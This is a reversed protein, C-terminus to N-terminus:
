RLGRGRGSGLPAGRFRFKSFCLRVREAVDGTSRCVGGATGSDVHGGCGGVGAGRGSWCDGAFKRAGIWVSLSGGRAGRADVANRRASNRRDDCACDPEVMLMQINRRTAGLALRIGFESKRRAARSSMVGYFGIAVLLLTLSAYIGALRALLKETGLDGNLETALPVIESVPLSPDVEHLARRVSESLQRPDGVARVRISNVPAPNQNINMYVM